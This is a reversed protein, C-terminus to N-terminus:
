LLALVEEDDMELHEKYLAEVKTIDRMLKDFDIQRVLPATKQGQAKTKVYPAVIEAAAEPKGEVIREYLDIIEAKRKEKIAREEAWKRKKYDGDHTDDIIIIPPAYVTVNGAVGTAESGTLSATASPNVNGVSGTASVGTLAITISVGQNGVAGTAQVGTLAITITPSVAGSAGTGAVGSLTESSTVGLSGASGTGTNGTVPLSDWLAADWTGTGWPGQAM